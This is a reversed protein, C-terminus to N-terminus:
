SVALVYSPVPQEYGKLRLPAGPRLERERGATDLLERTREDILVEGHVAEDCLRSALNVASGVATYELRSAAGIVGVTVYGSAVGAGIGLRLHEDSWRGVLGMGSERIARAMDIARRAHDAFEVPAGVLILVGDGAQDKITGGYRTAAEGVLDYYESLIRIVQQSATGKSFATFGRLDCCVVSLELTRDQTAAKLGRERVLSAVQPALFRSLFQARRGQIVHFQVSGVLFILMGVTTPVASMETPLVLGSAMFPAGLLFSTARLLEARDPRRRFLLLGSFASLLLSVGLPALFLNPYAQREDPLALCAVGYSVALAQGIRLLNDPGQTQLNRAPITRRVRLLWEYAFAFAAVTPLAFVGDWWTVGLRDRAAPAIFAGTAIALGLSALFLGLARSTPSRRDAAVFAIAMGLALLATIVHSSAAGSM